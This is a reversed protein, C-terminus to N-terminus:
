DLHRVASQGERRAFPLAGLRLGDAFIAARETARQQSDASAGPRRPDALALIPEAATPPRHARWQLWLTASPVVSIEYRAALPPGDASRRLAAFPLLHLADDPVIVLRRVRPPLSALGAALLDRYLGVAPHIESGDRREFLGNFLAVAPRLAVRDRSLRIVRTGNRTSVLLWSGGGFDRFLDEDPSIQFSLLAEDAALAQRVQPLVAFGPPRPNAPAPAATALLNRVEAEEIELRRLDRLAQSRQAEPLGPDLLRRQVQTINGQITAQRALLPSPSGVAVRAAELAEILTRARLREMAGFADDLRSADGTELLRGSLWYYNESWVSALGARSSESPQRDRVAEIAGLASRAGALAQEPPLAAWSVRMSERWADLRAWPDQAQDAFALAERVSTQAAALDGSQRQLKSLASWCLSRDKPQSLTALCQAAHERAIDAPGLRALVLHARGALERYGVKAAAALVEQALGTAEPRGEPRPVELLEEVLTRLTGYLAIAETRHDSTAVALAALQRYAVREETLRGLSLSVNALEDLCDRKLGYTGNPFAAEQARHLLLFARELNQGQLRLHKAELVEARAVLLPDGSRQAIAAVRQVEAGAEAPRGLKLLISHLATRSLIEGYADRRSDFIAAAERFPGEAREPEAWYISGLIHHLWPRQPNRALLEKVQREAEGAMGQNKGAEFFCDASEQREPAAAFRAQCDALTLTEASSVASSQFLVLLIAPIPVRHPLM